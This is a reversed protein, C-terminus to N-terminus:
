ASFEPNNEHYLTTVVVYLFILTFILHIIFM